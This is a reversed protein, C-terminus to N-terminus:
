TLVGRKQETVTLQSCCFANQLIPLARHPRCAGCMFIDVAAYNREPWTHITIHSEALVAVGSIGGNPSFCHLKLELLTAGCAEVADELMREIRGMDDLHQAHWLDVLLHTGAYRLGDREVFHDSQQHRGSEFSLHEQSRPEEAGCERRGREATAHDKQEPRLRHLAESAM